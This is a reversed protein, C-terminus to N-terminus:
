AEKFFKRQYIDKECINIQANKDLSTFSRIDEKIDDISIPFCKHADLEVHYILGKNMDKFRNQYHCHGCLSILHNKIPKSDDDYYNSTLTPFHSLYFHWKGSRIKIAWGALCVNPLKKYAALKRDSEHNGNLIVLTGNLQRLKEQALDYDNGMM